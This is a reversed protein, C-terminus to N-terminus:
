VLPWTATHADSRQNRAACLDQCGIPLRWKGNISWNRVFVTPQTQSHNPNDGFHASHNSAVVTTILKIGVNPKFGPDGKPAKSSRNREPVEM